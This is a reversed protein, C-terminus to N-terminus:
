RACGSPGDCRRGFAAPRGSAGRRGRRGRCRATLRRHVRTGKRRRRGSRVTNPEAGSGATRGAPLVPSQVSSHGERDGGVGSRVSVGIPERRVPDSAAREPPHDRDVGLVLAHEFDLAEVGVALDRDRQAVEFRRHRDAVGAERRVDESGVFVSPCPAAAGSEFPLVALRGTLRTRYRSRERRRGDTQPRRDGSPEQPRGSPQAARRDGPSGPM